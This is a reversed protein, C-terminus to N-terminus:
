QSSLCSKGKYQMYESLSSKDEECGNLIFFNEVKEPLLGKIIKQAYELAVMMRGEQAFIEFEETESFRGNDNAYYLAFEPNNKVFFDPSIKDGFLFSRLYVKMDEKIGVSFKNHNKREMTMDEGREYHKAIDQVLNMFVHVDESSVRPLENELLPDNEDYLPDDEYLGEYDVRHGNVSNLVAYDSYNNDDYEQTFSYSFEQVDPCDQFAAYILAETDIANELAYRIVSLKNYLV